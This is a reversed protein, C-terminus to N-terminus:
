AAAVHPPVAAIAAIQSVCGKSNMLFCNEVSSCFYFGATITKQNLRLCAHLCM